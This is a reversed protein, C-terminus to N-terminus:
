LSTDFGGVELYAARRFSVNGTCVHVGRVRAPDGKVHDIFREIQHAHFREYLPGGDPTGGDAEIRGLVLTYGADQAQYHAALLEPAARMDDDVIVIVDGRARLIGAHRAAAPGRNEQVVLSLAYPHHWGEELAEAVPPTSGDDVVVVEFKDAALTQVSLS